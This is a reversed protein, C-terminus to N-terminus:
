APTPGGDRGDRRRITPWGGGDAGTSTRPPQRHGGGQLQQLVDAVGLGRWDCPVASQHRASGGKKNSSAAPAATGIPRFVTRPDRRSHGRQRVPPTDKPHPSHRTAAAAPATPSPPLPQSQRAVVRHTARKSPAAATGRRRKGCVISPAARAGARWAGGGGGARGGGGGWLHAAHGDPHLRVPPLHQEHGGAPRGLRPHEGLAGNATVLPWLLRGDPLCALYTAPRRRPPPPRGGGVSPPTEHKAPTASSVADQDRNTLAVCQCPQTGPWPKKTNTAVAQPSEKGM